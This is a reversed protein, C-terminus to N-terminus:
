PEDHGVRLVAVPLDVAVEHARAPVGLAGVAGSLRHEDFVHLLQDLVVVGAHLDAGGLAIGQRPHEVVLEVPEHGGLGIFEVAEGLVTVPEFVFLVPEHLGVVGIRDRQRHESSLLVADESFEVAHVPTDVGVVAVIGVGAGVEVIRQVQQGVAGVDVTPAVVRVAAQAVLGEEGLDVDVFVVM